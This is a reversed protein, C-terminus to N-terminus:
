VGGAGIILILFRGGGPTPFLTSIRSGSRPCRECYSSKFGSTQTYCLVVLVSKKAAKCVCEDYLRHGSINFWRTSKKEKEKERERETVSGNGTMGPVGKKDCNTVIRALPSVLFYLKLGM